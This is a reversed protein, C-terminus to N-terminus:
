TLSPLLFACLCSLHAPQLQSACCASCSLLPQSGGGCTQLDGLLSPAFGSPLSAAMCAGLVGVGGVVCPCTVTGSRQPHSRLLLSRLTLAECSGSVSLRKEKLLWMPWQGSATDRCRSVPGGRCRLAPGQKSDESGMYSIQVLM